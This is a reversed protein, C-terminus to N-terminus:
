IVKELFYTNSLVDNAVVKTKEAGYNPLPLASGSPAPRLWPPALARIEKLIQYGITIMM